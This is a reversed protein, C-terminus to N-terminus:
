LVPWNLGLDAEALCAAVICWIGDVSMMLQDWFYGVKGLRDGFLEPELNGRGGLEPVELELKERRGLELEPFELLRCGLLLGLLFKLDSRPREGFLVMGAAPELGDM